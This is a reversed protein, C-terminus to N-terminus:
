GSDLNCTVLSFDFTADPLNWGRIRLSCLIIFGLRRPWTLIMCTVILKHIHGAMGMHLPMAQIQMAAARM